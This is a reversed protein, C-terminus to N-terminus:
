PMFHPKLDQAHWVGRHSGNDDELEYTASGLQKRIKFPGVYRPALKASYYNSADSLTKNKRWVLDGVKFSAPRRRLDYRKKNREYAEVLRKRIQAYIEQFNKIRVQTQTRIDADIAPRFPNKYEQGSMKQERGFNVFYPSFGTTEHVSTRLACGIAALQEDWLRHNDKVYSRIMTEMVGNVRETPNARPYYLATYSFSSKYKSLLDRFEKSRMQPGNDCIIYEPVGYVLFINEEVLRSLSKATASRVPFLVVFKSFYDTVVLIFKNGRTSRPLPGVYDLSIVQWPNTIPPRTGMVGAPLKAEIKQQACTKCSKVYQVVDAKMKPWTYRRAVRFYTKFIGGHGCTPEDHCERLCDRRKNKPLVEKWNEIPESSEPFKCQVYKYLINNEVRYRPYKDPHNNVQACLEEYWRDRKVPEETNTAVAIPVSRSLFDPVVHDKGKRHILEFDYPQLRLAWRALRGQPDKLRNLWLLSHHDTIVVFHVGELYHRLKEIAWIVALCERETTSYNREPRTLSRSLFCIVREGDNFNQTLVAGVGYASADTQLTFQRNFDPCSLLPYTVLCEKIKRFSDDCETTWKWPTNKKTLATLPAMVTAFNPVFRRYWSAMGVFRRVASVSDPPPVNIICEVKEPDPRLGYNDVVYGLYKLRPKCLACKSPNVTLGARKLRQFVKELLQLHCEFNKSIIVIDDLYVMVLPQLDAGLVSDVLRQFTAPANTLGFPMRKFQYLGRGPVTFATYERAKQTLPVQWYASKIDLSSIYKAERLNDLIASIYPLPYADKKTVCNLQRFDVCFRYTGDKKPVLCVPSSWASKSPEIIDEKLLMELEQDIIKQKAPSVPYYRQKIPKTDPLLEIDHEVLTTKGIGKKMHAFQEKMFDELVCKQSPTLTSSSDMNEISSLENASAFHWVNQKLNPVVEMAMWFDVGLICTHPLEPVILIDLVRTKNMLTIPTQIFGLVSCSHGNAMTCKSPAEVLALGLARLKEYGSNGVVTKSAGSDLLALISVGMVTIELYPRQDNPAHSIIYDLLIKSQQKQLNSNSDVTHKASPYSTSVSERGTLTEIARKGFPQM